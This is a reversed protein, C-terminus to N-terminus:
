EQFLRVWGAFSWGTLAGLGIPLGYTGLLARAGLIGAAIVGGVVDVVVNPNDGYVSPNLAFALTPAILGVAAGIAAARSRTRNGPREVVRWWLIAGPLFAGATASLVFEVDPSFTPNLLDLVVVLAFGLAGFAAGATM